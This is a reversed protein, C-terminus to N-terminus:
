RPSVFTLCILFCSMLCLEELEISSGYFICAPPLMPSVTKHMPTVNITLRRGTIENGQGM